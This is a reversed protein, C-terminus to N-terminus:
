VKLEIRVIQVNNSNNNNKGLTYKITYYDSSTNKFYIREEKFNNVDKITKSSTKVGSGSSNFITFNLGTPATTYTYSIDIFTDLKNPQEYFTILNVPTVNGQILYNEVAMSELGLLLLNNSTVKRSPDIDFVWVYIAIILISLTILFLLFVFSLSDM